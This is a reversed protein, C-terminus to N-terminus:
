SNQFSTVTVDIVLITTMQVFVDMHLLEHKAFQHTSVYSFCLFNAFSRICWSSLWRYQQCPDCSFQLGKLYIHFIIFRFATSPFCLKYSFCSACPTFLIGIHLSPPTLFIFPSVYWLPFASYVCQCFIFCFYLVLLSVVPTNSFSYSM